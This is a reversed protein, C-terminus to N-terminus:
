DLTNGWTPELATLIPDAENGPWLDYFAILGPKLKTNIKHQLM